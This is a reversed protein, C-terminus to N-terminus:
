SVFLCSVFSFPLSVPPTAFHYTPYFSDCSQSLSSFSLITSLSLVDCSLRHLSQLSHVSICIYICRYASLNHLFYVLYSTPPVWRRPFLFLTYASPEKSGSSQSLLLCLPRHSYLIYLAAQGGRLGRFRSVYRCTIPQSYASLHQQECFTISCCVAALLLLSVVLNVRIHPHYSPIWSVAECHEWPSYFIHTVLSSLYSYFRWNLLTLLFQSSLM